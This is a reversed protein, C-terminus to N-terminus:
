GNTIEWRMVVSKGEGNTVEGRAWRMVRVTVAVTEKAAGEGGRTM